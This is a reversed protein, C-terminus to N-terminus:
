DKTKLRWWAELVCAVSWAQLPCGRPDHPPDADFIESISGLGADLLHDRTPELYNLATEADNDVRYEALAYHGLLWGWATGQHYGGDRAQLNGLYHPHYDPDEPSLSRLGHSCLLERACVELVEACLADDLPSHKLSLALLQNPRITPHGRDPGDLVDYLGGHLPNLYSQFGVRTKEALQRYVSDSRQLALCFEGMCCLANYWLANIEVPKGLRPTVVWDGVKADMWTVQIGPEGAYLLGDRRDMIIQYRTGERYHRIISELVPFVQELADRDRTQELYARWAEIYWLAADASNYLPPQGHEPLTNPLMGGDVLGAFDLLIQRALHEWGTALCLGPLAIMMDRGWDSFWPYGALISYAQPNDPLARTILFSDAALILQQIWDPANALEPRNNEVGTLLHNEREVARNLFTETTTPQGTARTGGRLGCWVGPQLTFWGEALCLHNDHAPLGREEEVPLYLNEMWFPTAIPELQPQSAQWHLSCDSYQVELHNSSHTAVKAEFAGPWATNHHNRHNVWLSLHLKVPYGACLGAEPLLRFAIWTANEGYEMWIRQELRIPGLRFRWVPLRGQLYFSETHPFGRPNIAGGLWRNTSLPWSQDGHWVTAEARSWLLRRSLYPDAAILLGHYRRTLSNALTGAAYGGLGNGLWWERREAQVLDGCIARGFRIFEPLKPM